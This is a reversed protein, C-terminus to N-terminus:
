LPYLSNPHPSPNLPNGDGCVSENGDQGRSTELIKRVSPMEIDRVDDTRGGRKMNIVM